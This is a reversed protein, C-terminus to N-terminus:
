KFKQKQKKIDQEKMIIRVEDSPNIKFEPPTNRNLKMGRKLKNSASNILSLVQGINESPILVRYSDKEGKLYKGENLLKDRIYTAYSLEQLAISDFDAKTGTLITDIGCLDRFLELPIVSGYDLYNHAKLNTYLEKNSIKSM